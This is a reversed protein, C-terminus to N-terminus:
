SKMSAAAARAAKRRKFDQKEKERLESEKKLQDRHEKQEALDKDVVSQCDPDPCITTTHTVVAHGSYTEVKETWTKSVIRTKGCRTCISTSSLQTNALTIFFQLLNDASSSETLENYWV